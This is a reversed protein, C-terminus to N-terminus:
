LQEEAAPPPPPSPKQDLTRKLKAELLDLEKQQVALRQRRQELERALRVDPPDQHMHSYPIVYDAPLLEHGIPPPTRRMELWAAISLGLMAGCLLTLVLTVFMLALSKIVVIVFVLQVAWFLLGITTVVVAGSPAARNEAQLGLGLAALALGIAVGAPVAIAIARQASFTPQDVPDGPLHWGIRTLDKAEAKDKSILASGCCIFMMVLFLSVGVVQFVTGVGQTFARPPPPPNPPPEIPDPM